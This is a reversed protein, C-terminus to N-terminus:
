RRRPCSSETQEFVLSGFFESREELHTLWRRCSRGGNRGERRGEEKGERRREGERRGKGGRAFVFCVHTGRPYRPKTVLPRCSARRKSGGNARGGDGGDGGQSFRRRPPVTISFDRLAPCLGVASPQSTRPRPPPPRGRLYPWKDLTWLIMSEQFGVQSALVGVRVVSPAPPSSAVMLVCCCLPTEGRSPM